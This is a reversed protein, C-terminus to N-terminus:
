GTRALRDRLRTCHRNCGGGPCASASNGGCRTSTAHSNLAASAFTLILYLGTYTMTRRFSRKVSPTLLPQSPRHDTM